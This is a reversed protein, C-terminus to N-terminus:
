WITREIRELIYSMACRKEVREETSTVKAIKMKQPYYEGEENVQKHHMKGTLKKRVRESM